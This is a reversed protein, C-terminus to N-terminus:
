VLVHALMSIPTILYCVHKFSAKRLPALKDIADYKPVVEGCVRVNRNVM